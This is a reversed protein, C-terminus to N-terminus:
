DIESPSKLLDRLKRLDSLTDRIAENRAASAPAKALASFTDLLDEAFKKVLTPLENTDLGAESSFSDIYEGFPQRRAKRSRKKRSPVADATVAETGTAVDQLMVLTHDAQADPTISKVRYLAPEASDGFQVLLLSNLKLDPTGKLYVRPGEQSQGNRISSDTQPQVLRPKLNNWAARTLLPESTEFAQPLEGPGPVSQVRAGAPIVVDEKFNPDITYALHVTSAVGPRLAYGVLRALELVSRRETATHLYGENAIREQYFTLVDGVTAWADLLAISPDYAARITLKEFPYVREVTTQGDAGTKPLEIFYSSLRAKMTELFTAHTGVRYALSWLGPRNAIRAPTSQHIGECCDCTENM